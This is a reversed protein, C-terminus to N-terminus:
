FVNTNETKRKSNEMKQNRTEPKRKGNETKRRGNRNETKRKGNGNETEAKRKRNGNGNETETKRKRNGNGNEMKQKINEPEWKGNETRNQKLYTSPGVMPLALEMDGWETGAAGKKVLAGMPVKEDLKQAFSQVSTEGEFM